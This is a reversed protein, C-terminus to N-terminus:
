IRVGSGQGPSSSLGRLMHMDVRRAADRGLITATDGSQQEVYLGIVYIKLFLVKRLGIGNLQLAKGGVTATDPMTVGALEAAVASGPSAGALALALAVLVPAIPPRRM